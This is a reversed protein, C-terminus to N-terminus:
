VGFKMKRRIRVLEEEEQEKTQLGGPRLVIWKGRSKEEGGEMTM